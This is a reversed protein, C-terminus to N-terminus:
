ALRLIQVVEDLLVMSGDLASSPRHQAELVKPGRRLDERADFSGVHDALPLQSAGFALAYRSGVLEVARTRIARETRAM